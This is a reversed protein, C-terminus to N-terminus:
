PPPSRRVAPASGHPNLAGGQAVLQRRPQAAPGGHAGLHAAPHGLDHLAHPALAVRHDQGEGALQVGAAGLGPRQAHVRQLQALGPLRQRLSQPLGQLQRRRVNARHRERGDVGVAVHLERLPLPDRQALQGHPPRGDVDGAPPRRVRARHHHAGGGRPHRAHLLDDHARRGPRAPVHVRRHQARAGHAAHVLDVPHPARLRHGRQRQACLAHGAHVHHGPGAVDVHLLGLPLERVHDPDVAEGPGALQQHQEVALGVGPQRRQVQPGLGLVPRLAQQDGDRGGGLREVRDAVLELRRGRLGGRGAPQQRRGVELSREGEGLGQRGLVELQHAWPGLRQGGADAAGAAHEHAGDAAGGEPVVHGPGVM